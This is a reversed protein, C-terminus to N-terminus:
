RALAGRKGGRHHSKRQHHPRHPERELGDVPPQLLRRARQAGPAEVGEAADGQRQHRRANEGAQHEGEGAAEALEAGGDGEDGINGALRARNGDGDVRQGLRGVAVRGRQPEQMM